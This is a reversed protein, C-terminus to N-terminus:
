SPKVGGKPLFRTYLPAFPDIKLSAHPTYTHTCYVSYHMVSRKLQYHRTFQRPDEAARTRKSTSEALRREGHADNQLLDHRAVPSCVVYISRLGTQAMHRKLMHLMHVAAANLCSRDDPKTM